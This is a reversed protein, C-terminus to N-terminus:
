EHGVLADILRVADLAGMRMSVDMLSPVQPERPNIRVLRGGHRHVIRESFHRVSPIYTGAGLEVVVPRRVDSLWEDLRNEQIDYERSRWTGDAFMLINPRALGGCTPCSPLDGLWRCEDTDICPEVSAASWPIQGCFDMCQLRHISGHCEHIREDAFGARQFQGDVNSTFVFAGM